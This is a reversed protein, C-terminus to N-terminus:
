DNLLLKWRLARRKLFGCDISIEKNLNRVIMSHLTKNRGPQGKDLDMPLNSINAETAAERMALFQGTRVWGLAQIPPWRRM